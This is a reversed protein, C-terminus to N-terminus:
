NLPGYYGPTRDILPKAHRRSWRNERFGAATPEVDAIEARHKIVLLGQRMGHFIALL